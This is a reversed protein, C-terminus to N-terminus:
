PRVLWEGFLKERTSVNLLLTHSIAGTNLARLSEDLSYEARFDKFPEGLALVSHYSSLAKRRAGQGGKM